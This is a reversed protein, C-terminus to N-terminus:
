LMTLIKLLAKQEIFQAVVNSGPIAEAAEGGRLSPTHIGAKAPIVFTYL